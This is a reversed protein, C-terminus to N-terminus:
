APELQGYGVNTKAGIGTEILIKRFLDRKEQFGINRVGINSDTFDFQFLFSVKPIVKLFQLPTPNTFPSLEPHVRNIHPTIFDEDVIKNNKGLGVICADHFKDRQYISLYEWNKKKKLFNFEASNEPKKSLTKFIDVGEFISLELKYIQLKEAATASYYQDTINNLLRWIYSAKVDQHPKKEDDVHYNPFVSRLTGKVSSGPVIPLGTTYDFFFGLKFEGKSGTEHNYGSGIVLGPYTTKLRFCHDPNLVIEEHVLSNLLGTNPSYGKIIENKGAFISSNRDSIVDNKKVRSGNRLIFDDKPYKRPDFHPNGKFRYYDKYFLYGLNGNYPM